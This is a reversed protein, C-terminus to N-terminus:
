VTYTGSQRGSGFVNENTKLKRRETEEQEMTLEYIDKRYEKQETKTEEIETYLNNINDNMIHIMNM